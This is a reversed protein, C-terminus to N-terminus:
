SATRLDNLDHKKYYINDYKNSFLSYDLLLSKSCIESKYTDSEKYFYMNCLYEDDLDNDFLYDTIESFCNYLKEDDKLSFSIINIMNFKEDDSTNIEKLEFKFNKYKKDLYDIIKNKM